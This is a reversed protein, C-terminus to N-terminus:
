YRSLSSSIGYSAAVFVKLPQEAVLALARKVAPSACARAALPQASAAAAALQDPRMPLEAAEIDDVRDVELYVDADTHTHTHTHM